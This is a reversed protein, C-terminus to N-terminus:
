KSTSPSSTLSRWYENLLSAAKLDNRIEIAARKTPDQHLIAILDEEIVNCDSRSINFATAFIKNAECPANPDLLELNQRHFAFGLFVIQQASRFVDRMETLTGDDHVRENFTKIQAAIELLSPNESGFPIAARTNNLQWPLKGVQGYPHYIKLTSLIPKVTDEQIGYYSQLANYLYHEVCRDYNFNIISINSFLSEIEPLPKGETLLKVYGAFWTNMGRRSDLKAMDTSKFYFQSERESHLISEVIGLKGCVEAQEDGRYADLLNDISIALPLAEQLKWAKELYPTINAWGGDKTSAHKRLAATIKPNGSSQQIGDRFKINIQKAILEKLDEGVPLGIENSSGAGLVFVTKSRFM